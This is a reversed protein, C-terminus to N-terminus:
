AKIMEARKKMAKEHAVEMGEPAKAKDLSAEAAISINKKRELEKQKLDEFYFQTACSSPIENAKFAPRKCEDPVDPNELMRKKEAM